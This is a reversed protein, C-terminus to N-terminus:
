RMGCMTHARKIKPALVRIAAVDAVVNQLPHGAKISQLAAERVRRATTRAEVISERDYVLHQPVTCHPHWAGTKSKFSGAVIAAGIALLVSAIRWLLDLVAM